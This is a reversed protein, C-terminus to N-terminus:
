KAQKKTARVARWLEKVERELASVRKELMATTMSGVGFTGAPDDGSGAGVVLTVQALPVKHMEIVWVPLGNSLRRKQIPPLNLGPAQGLAPPHSRDPTAQAGVTPAFLAAGAIGVACLGSAWALRAGTM